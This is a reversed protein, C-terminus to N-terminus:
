WDVDCQLERAKLEHAQYHNATAWEDTIGWHQLHDGQMQHWDLYIYESHSPISHEHLHM